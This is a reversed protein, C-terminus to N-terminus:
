NIQSNFIYDFYAKKANRLYTRSIKITKGGILRFCDGSIGDIYEINVLYSKHCRCFNNDLLFQEFDALKGSIEIKRNEMMTFIVKRLNSELYQINSLLIKTEIGEYTVTIYQEKKNQATCRKICERLLDSDIPKLLYDSAHVRYSQVGYEKSDSVFVVPTETDTERLKVATDMGSIKPMLIDLIILDYPNKFHSELLKTGDDFEDARCNKVIGGLAETIRQRDERLDDCVAIRM